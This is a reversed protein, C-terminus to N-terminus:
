CSARKLARLCTELAVPCADTPVRLTFEGVSVELSAACRPTIELFHGRAPPHASAASTPAEAQLRRVWRNFKGYPLGKEHCWRTQSVGARQWEEVRQQWLQRAAKSERRDM